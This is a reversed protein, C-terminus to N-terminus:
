VCIAPAVTCLVTIFDDLFAAELHDIGQGDSAHGLLEMSPTGAAITHNGIFITVTSPHGLEAWMEM